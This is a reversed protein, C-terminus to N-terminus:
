LTVTGLIESLVGHGFIEWREYDDAAGVDAFGREEIAEGARAAGDDGVFGADGAVADVAGGIHSPLGKSTTSVPPMTGSSLAPIGPSIRRWAFNAMSWAVRTTMTTSARWPTVGRSVSSAWNNRRAPFGGSIAAFLTSVM